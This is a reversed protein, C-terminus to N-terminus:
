SFVLVEKTSVMTLLESLNLLFVIVKIILNCLFLTHICYYTMKSIASDSISNLYVFIKLILVVHMGQTINKLLKMGVNMTTM